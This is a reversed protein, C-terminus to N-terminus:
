RRGTSPWRSLLRRCNSTPARRSRSDLRAHAHRQARLSVGHAGAAQRQFSGTAALYCRKSCHCAMATGLGRLVTRRTIQLKSSMRQSRKKAQKQFPDSSVVELVLRSFRYDDQELAKKIKQVACIDYYELGRGVAYILSKETMCQVFEDRKAELLVERLRLSGTFKEGSPLEGSANM